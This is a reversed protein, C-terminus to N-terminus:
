AKSSHMLVQLHMPMSGSYVDGLLSHTKLIVRTTLDVDAEALVSCFFLSSSQIAEISVTTSLELHEAFYSCCRLSQQLHHDVM